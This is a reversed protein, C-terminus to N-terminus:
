GRGSTRSDDYVSCTKERRNAAADPAVPSPPASAATSVAARHHPEPKALAVTVGALLASAEIEGATSSATPRESQRNPSLRYTIRYIMM